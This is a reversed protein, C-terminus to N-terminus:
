LPDVELIRNQSVSHDIKSSAQSRELASFARAIKVLSGSWISLRALEQFTFFPIILIFIFSRMLVLAIKQCIAGM